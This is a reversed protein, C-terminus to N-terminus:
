DENRGGDQSKVFSGNADFIVEIKTSLEVEFGGNTISRAEVISASPYTTSLYDKALQPITAADIVTGDEHQDGNQNDGDQSDDDIDNEDAQADNKDVGVGLFVGDGDFVLETGDSLALEYHGNNEMSASTVTSGTHNAAVYDLISQPLAAPDLTTDGFDGNTDDDIGIFAGDAGFILEIGDSLKVEFNGNDEIESKTITTNPYNTTLYDLVSQPLDTSNIKTDALATIGTLAVQSDAPNSNKSCSSIFALTIFALVSLKNLTKM